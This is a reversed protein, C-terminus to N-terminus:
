KRSEAQYFVMCVEPNNLIEKVEVEQINADNAKFWHTIGHSDVRSVYAIYHGGFSNGEHNIAAILKMDRNELRIKEYIKVPTLNKKPGLSRKLTFIVLEPVLDIEIKTHTAVKTNCTTCNRKNNDDLSEYNAFNIVCDELTPNMIDPIPLQIDLFNSSRVITNKCNDCFVLEKYKGFCLKNIINTIGKDKKEDAFANILYSIFESPDHQDTGRFVSSCKDLTMKFRLPTYVGQSNKTALERIVRIYEALLPHFNRVANPNKTIYIMIANNMDNLSLLAQLAANMYCTNHLNTFGRVNTTIPM